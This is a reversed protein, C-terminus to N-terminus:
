SFPNLKVVNIIQVVEHEFKENSTTRTGDPITRWVSPDNKLNFKIDEMVAESYEFSDNLEWTCPVEVVEDAVKLEQRLHITDPDSFIFDEKTVLAECDSSYIDLDEFSIDRNLLLSSYLAEPSSVNNWIKITGLSPRITIYCSM